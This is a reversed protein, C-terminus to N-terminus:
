VKRVKIMHDKNIFLGDTTKIWKPMKDLDYPLFLDIDVIHVSGDSLTVEISKTSM